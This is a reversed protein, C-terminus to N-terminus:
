EGKSQSSDPMSHRKLDDLTFDEDVWFVGQLFGLWRMAKEIKGEDVFKQAEQTMYLLHATEDKLCQSCKMKTQEESFRRPQKKPSVGLIYSEYVKFVSKLKERTV